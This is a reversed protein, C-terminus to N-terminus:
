ARRDLFSAIADLAQDLVPGLGHGLGPWTVLEHDPLRDVARRLLDIRAFPDSEGSLLLVPCHVAPWHETRADWAEHRGPAHLPFSLLLLAAPAMEAAVLSAVRGGFSQGGIATTAPDRGTLATRYAPLAREATGRPLRVLEVALGRARLGDAHPALREVSGSAGPALLVTGVSM